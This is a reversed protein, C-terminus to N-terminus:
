IRSHTSSRDAFARLESARYLSKADCAPCRGGREGFLGLITGFPGPLLAPGVYCHRCPKFAVM